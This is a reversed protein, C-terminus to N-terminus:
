GPDTPRADRGEGPQSGALFVRFSSGGGPRDEVWARGGHLSAFRAVLSLGIGSGGERADPGRRFEEFVAAKLADSVGPGEDDVTIIAGDEAGVVAIRVPTGRPTHRAVNSLLNELIREVKTRDVPITLPDADIEM